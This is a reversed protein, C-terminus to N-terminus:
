RALRTGLVIACAVASLLNGLAGADVATANAVVAAVLTMNCLFNAAQWLREDQERM